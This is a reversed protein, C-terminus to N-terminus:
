SQRSRTHQRLSHLERLHENIRSYQQEVSKTDARTLNYLTQHNNQSRTSTRMPEFMPHQQILASSGLPRYQTLNHIRQNNVRCNHSYLPIDLTNPSVPHQIPSEIRIRKFNDNLKEQNTNEQFEEIGRKM